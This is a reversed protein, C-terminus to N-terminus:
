HGHHKRGGIAPKENMVFTLLDLSHDFEFDAQGNSSTHKSRRLATDWGVAKAGQIDNEISDGVYLIRAATGALGARSAAIHFIAPDPKAVGEDCSIVFTQFYRRLGVGAFATEMCFGPWSTNAILSTYIGADVLGALMPEVDPFLWHRYRPGAYAVTLVAAQEAPIGLQLQDIVALLVRYYSFAAGLETQLQSYLQDHCAHLRQADVDVHLGALAAILRDVRQADMEKPTPPTGSGAFLTGGSDFFVADYRAM